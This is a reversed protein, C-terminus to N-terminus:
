RKGVCGLTLPAFRSRERSDDPWRRWKYVDVKPQQCEGTCVVHRKREECIAM